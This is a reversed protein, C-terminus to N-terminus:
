GSPGARGHDDHGRRPHHRGPLHPQMPGAQGCAVHFHHVRGLSVASNATTITFPKIYNLSEVFLAGYVSGFLSGTVQLFFNVAVVILTRKITPKDMFMDMFKGQKVEAEIGARILAMEEAIQEDTFRGQRLRTLHDLADDYRGKSALWGSSEPVFWICAAVISPVVFFLGYMIRFAAEFKLDGMARAISNVVLGRTPLSLQYTGVVFGHTKKPTIDVQYIPVVALEMGSYISALM